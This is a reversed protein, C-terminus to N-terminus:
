ALIGFGGSMGPDAPDARHRIDRPRERDRGHDAFDGMGGAAILLLHQQLQDSRWSDDIEIGYFVRPVITLGVVAIRDIGCAQAADDLHDRVFASPPPSYGLAMAETDGNVSAEDAIDRGDDFDRNAVLALEGHM